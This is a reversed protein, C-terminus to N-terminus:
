ASRVLAPATMPVDVRAVLRDALRDQGLLLLATAALIRLDLGLSQHEVYALDIELKAPMVMETYTREWGAGVLLAQEDRFRLAALSTIGPRVDLVRRQRSSYLEVYHPDEPRPGILSMDGVLVNWLQPLEDLRTRRLLRGVRTIRDDGHRTIRDPRGGQRARMTRFKYMTFPRGARGARTARYLIPGDSDLRVAVAIAGLLPALAVLGLGAVLVDLPRKAIPETHLADAATIASWRTCPPM